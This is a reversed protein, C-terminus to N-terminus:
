GGEGGVAAAAPVEAAVWSERGARECAGGVRLCAGKAVGSDELAAVRRPLFCFMRTLPRLVGNRHAAGVVSKVVLRVLMHALSKRMQLLALTFYVRRHAKLDGLRDDIRRKRRGRYFVRPSLVTVGFATIFVVVIIIIILNFFLKLSSETKRENMKTNSAL